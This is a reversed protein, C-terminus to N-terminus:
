DVLSGAYFIGIANILFSKEPIDYSKSLKEKLRQVDGDKTAQAAWEYFKHTVIGDILNTFEEDTLDALKKDVATNETNM